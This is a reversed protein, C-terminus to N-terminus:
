LMSEIREALPRVVEGWAFRSRVRELNSVCAAHFADDTGLRELAAAVGPTDGVAVVVGLGESAVLDAAFGGASAVIPVGCWITDFLRTRIAFRAELSEKHLMVAVRSARLWRARERYPVWDPNRIIADDDPAPRRGAAREVDDNPRRGGMFLLRMAVGRARVTRVADIAADPDLWPWMGGGWIAVPESGLDIPEGDEAPDRDEVGFPVTVWRRLWPEAVAVSELHVGSYFAKQAETACLLLDGEKLAARLRRWEIWQHARGRLGNGDAYVAPLELVVPDFLDFVRRTRPSRLALLERTPQGIVVDAERLLKTAAGSGRSLAELRGETRAFEDPLEAVLVVDFRKALEVSLHFARLGPGAMRAGVVDRTHVVVRATM